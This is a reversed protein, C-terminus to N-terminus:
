EDDEGPVRDPLPSSMLGSYDGHRAYRVGSGEVRLADDGHREMAEEATMRYRTKRRKGTFRNTLTWFYQVHDEGHPFPWNAETNLRTHEDM